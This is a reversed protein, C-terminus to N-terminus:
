SGFGIEDMILRFMIEYGTDNPHLGDALLSDISLNNADCYQCFKEYLNILPFGCEDAAKQYLKSVDSMHFVRWFDSGDKENEASAPINAMFVYEKGLGEFRNRLKIINEYFRSMYEEKSCKPGNRFYQNRNNTGITCLIIDDDEDVLVDFHELIFEIKTGTCGNNIVECNFNKEMYKKLENAWCYGDPSRSFGEVIKDGNQVFGTGGVGHTISDGLLKIRVRKNSYKVKSFIKSVETNM